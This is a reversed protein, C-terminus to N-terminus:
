FSFGSVQAETGLSSLFFNTVAAVTVLMAATTRNSFEKRRHFCPTDPRALFYAVQLFSFVFVLTVVSTSFLVVFVGKVSSTPGYVTLPVCWLFRCNISLIEFHELYDIGLSQM